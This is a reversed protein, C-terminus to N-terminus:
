GGGEPAPASLGGADGSLLGLADLAERGIGVLAGLDVMSLEGRAISAAIGSDAVTTNGRISRASRSFALDDVQASKALSDSGCGARLCFVLWGNGKSAQQVDAILDRLAEARPKGDADIVQRMRYNGGSPRIGLSGSVREWAPEGDVRSRYVLKFNLIRDVLRSFVTEREGYMPVIRAREYSNDEFEIRYRYGFGAAANLSNLGARTAAEIWAPGGVDFTLSRTAADWVSHANTVLTSPLPNGEMWWIGRMNTPVGATESQRQRLAASWSSSENFWDRIIAVKRPETALEEVHFLVYKSTDFFERPVTAPPVRTTAPIMVAGGQQQHNDPPPPPPRRPPPPPPHYPTQRYEVPYEDYYLFGSNTYASTWWPSRVEEDQEVVDVVFPLLGNNNNWRSPLYPTDWRTTGDSPIGTGAHGVYANASGASAWAASSQGTQRGAIGDHARHVQAGAPVRGLLLLSPLLPLPSRPM